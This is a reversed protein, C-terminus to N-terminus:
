KSKGYTGFVTELMTSVNSPLESWIACPQLFVPRESIIKLNEILNGIVNCAHACLESAGDLLFVM